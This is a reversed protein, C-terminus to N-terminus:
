VHLLMLDPDVVEIFTQVTLSDDQLADLVQFVVPVLTPKHM